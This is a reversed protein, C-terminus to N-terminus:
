FSITFSILYWVDPLTCNIILCEGLANFIQFTIFSIKILILESNKKRTYIIQQKQIHMFLYNIINVVICIM